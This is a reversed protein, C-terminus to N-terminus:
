KKGLARDLDGQLQKYTKMQDDYKKMSSMGSQMDKTMDTFSKLMNKAQQIYLSAATKARYVTYKFKKENIVYVLILAVIICIVVTRRIWLGTVHRGCYRCIRAEEQIEEACFPCKKM